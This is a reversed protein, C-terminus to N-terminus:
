SEEYKGNNNLLVISNQTSTVNKATTATTLGTEGKFGDAFTSSTGLSCGLIFAAVLTILRRPVNIM